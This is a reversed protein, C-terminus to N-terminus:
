SRAGPKRDASRAAADAAEGPRRGTVDDARRRADRLEDAAGATADEIRVTIGNTRNGTADLRDLITKAVHAAIRAESAAQAAESKTDRAVSSAQRSRDWLRLTIGLVVFLLAMIIVHALYDTM